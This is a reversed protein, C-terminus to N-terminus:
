CGLVASTGVAEAEDCSATAGIIQVRSISVTESFFTGPSLFEVFHKQM